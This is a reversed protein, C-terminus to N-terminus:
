PAVAAAMIGQVVQAGAVVPFFPLPFGDCRCSRDDGNGHGADGTKKQDNVLAGFPVTLLMGVIEDATMVYGIEDPTWNERFICGRFLDWDMGCM